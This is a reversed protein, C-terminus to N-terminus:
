QKSLGVLVIEERPVTAEVYGKTKPDYWQSYELIQHRVRRVPTQDDLLLTGEDFTQWAVARTVEVPAPDDSALRRPGGDLPLVTPKTDRMAWSIGLSAAAATALGALAVWWASIKKPERAYGLAQPAPKRARAAALAGGV